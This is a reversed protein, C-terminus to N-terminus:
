KYRAILAIRSPYRCCSMGPSLSGSRSSLGHGRAVNQSEPPRPRLEIAAYVLYPIADDLDPRAFWEAHYRGSHGSNLNIPVSLTLALVVAM